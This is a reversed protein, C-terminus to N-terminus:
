LKRPQMTCPSERALLGLSNDIFIIKNLYHSSFKYVCVPFSAFYSRSMTSASFPRREIDIVYNKISLLKPGRALSDDQIEPSPYKPNYTMKIGVIDWEKGNSVAMSQSTSFCCRPDWHSPCQIFTGQTSVSKALCALKFFIVFLTRIVRFMTRINSKRLSM